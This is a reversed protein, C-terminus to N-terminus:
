CMRPMGPISKELGYRCKQCKADRKMQLLDNHCRFSDQKQLESTSLLHMTVCKKFTQLIFVHLNNLIRASM